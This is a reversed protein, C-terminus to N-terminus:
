VFTNNKCASDQSDKFEESKFISTSNDDHPDHDHKDEKSGTPINFISSTTALDDDADVAPLEIPDCGVWFRSFSKVVTM